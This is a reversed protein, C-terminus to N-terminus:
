SKKCHPWHAQRSCKRACHIRRFNTWIFSSYDTRMALFMAGQARVALYGTKTEGGTLREGIAHVIEHKTDGPIPANRITEKEFKVSSM